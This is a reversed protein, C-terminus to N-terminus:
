ASSPMRSLTADRPSPSTYLLCPKSQPRPSASPAGTQTISRRTGGQPTGASSRSTGTGDQQLFTPESNFPPQTQVMKEILSILHDVQSKEDGQKNSVPSYRIQILYVVLILVIASLVMRRSGQAKCFGTVNVVVKHVSGPATSPQMGKKTSTNQVPQNDADKSNSLPHESGKNPPIQGPEPHKTDTSARINRRTLGRGDAFEEHSKAMITGVNQSSQQDNSSSSAKSKPPLYYYFVVFLVVLVLVVPHDYIVATPIEIDAGPWPSFVFNKVDNAKAM